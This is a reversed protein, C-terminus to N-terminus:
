ITEGDFVTRGSGPIIKGDNTDAVVILKCKKCRQGMREGALDNVPKNWEHDCVHQTFVQPIPEAPGRQAVMEIGPINM